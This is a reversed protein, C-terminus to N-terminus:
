ICYRKILRLAFFQTFYLVYTIFSLLKHVCFNDKLGARRCGTTVLYFLIFLESLYSYTKIIGKAFQQVKQTSMGRIDKGKMKRGAWKGNRRRGVGFAWFLPSNPRLSFDRFLFIPRQKPCNETKFQSWTKEEKKKQTGFPVCTHTHPPCICTTLQQTIHTISKQGLFHSIIGSSIFNILISQLIIWHLHQFAFKSPLPQALPNSKEPHTSKEVARTYKHPKEKTPQQVKRLSTTQLIKKATHFVDTLKIAVSGSFHFALSVKKIHCCPTVFVALIQQAGFTTRSFESYSTPSSM